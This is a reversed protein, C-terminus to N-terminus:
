RGLGKLVPSRTRDSAFMRLDSTISYTPWQGIAAKIRKLPGVANPDSTRTPGLLSVRPSWLQLEAFAIRQRATNLRSNRAFSTAERRQELLALCRALNQQTLEHWHPTAEVTWEELAARYAAVAEELRSTGSELGGLSVLANGLSNRTTAWELPVRVRTREELAARYAAVAEDLHSTGSERKDLTFLAVRLNNQTTAM